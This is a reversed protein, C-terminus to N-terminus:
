GVLVRVPDKKRSVTFSHEIAKRTQQSINVTEQLPCMAPPLVAEAEHRRNPTPHLVPLGFTLEM